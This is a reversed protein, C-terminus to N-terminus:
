FSPTLKNIRCLVEEPLLLVLKNLTVTDTTLVPHKFSWKICGTYDTLEGVNTLLRRTLLIIHGSWALSFVLKGCLLTSGNWTSLRVLEHPSQLSKGDGNSIAGFM